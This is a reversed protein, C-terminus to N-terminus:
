VDPYSLECDPELNLKNQYKPKKKKKCIILYKTKISGYSVFFGLSLHFFGM